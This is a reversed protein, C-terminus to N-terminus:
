IRRAKVMGTSKNIHIGGEAAIRDDIITRVQGLQEENLEGSGWYSRIYALLPETETVWLFDPYVTVYTHTFAPALKEAANHLGFREAATTFNRINPAVQQVLEYINYMHRLGNTTAYLVGGPKLVRQVTLISRQLDTVHLLMQNAIVADFHGTILPADQIDAIMYHFCGNQPLNQRATDLMGSSLDSLTITVEMPLREINQMWLAGPGSGFELIRMGPQIEVQDFVWLWWPYQYTRYKEHLQIRNRLKSTERYREYRSYYSDANRNVYEEM